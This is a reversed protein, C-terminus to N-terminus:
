KLLVEVKRIADVTALVKEHSILNVPSISNVTSIGVNVLNRSSLYINDDVQETLILVNDLGLSKLKLNLDKTKPTNQIFENIIILRDQRLLESFISRIAAKYMKKNVKQEFSRSVAAFTRGGGKWLPSRITGARARGTGKQRWPKSGGGSVEARNKQAKTGSRGAAMYATVVQHVLDEKFESGFVEESLTIKSSESGSLNIANYEM